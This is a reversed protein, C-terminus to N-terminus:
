VGSVARWFAEFGAASYLDALKPNEHVLEITLDMMATFIRTRLGPPSDPIGFEEALFRRGRAQTDGRRAKDVLSSLRLMRLAKWRNPSSLGWRLVSNWIALLKERSGVRMEALESPVAGFAEAVLQSYLETLLEEKSRFYTFLSGEAVGAAKAILATPASDGREAVVDAAADLLSARKEESRPRAMRSYEIM